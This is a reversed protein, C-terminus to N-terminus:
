PNLSAPPPLDLKKDRVLGFSIIKVFRSHHKQAAAYAVVYHATVEDGYKMAADRQQELVVAKQNLAQITQDQADEIQKRKENEQFLAPYDQLKQADTDPPKTSNAPIARVISNLSKKLSNTAQTSAVVRSDAEEVKKQLDQLQTLFTQRDQQFAQKDVELQDRKGDQRGSDQGQSYAYRYAGWILLLGAIVMSAKRGLPSALLAWM